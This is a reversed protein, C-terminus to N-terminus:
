CGWLMGSPVGVQWGPGYAAFRALSERRRDALSRLEPQQIQWAGAL